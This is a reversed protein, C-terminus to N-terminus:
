DPSYFKFVLHRYLKKARQGFCILHDNGALPPPLFTRARLPLTGRLELTGQPPVSLTVSVIGGRRHRPLPSITTYSVVTVITIDHAPYVGSSLLILYPLLLRRSRKKSGPLDSSNPLSGTGLYIIM